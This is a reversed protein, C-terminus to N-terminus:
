SSPMRPRTVSAERPSGVSREPPVEELRRDGSHSAAEVGGDTEELGSWQPPGQVWARLWNRSPVGMESSEGGGRTRRCTGVCALVRGAGLTAM